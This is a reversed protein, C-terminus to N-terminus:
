LPYERVKGVSIFVLYFIPKLHEGAFVDAHAAIDLSMTVPWSDIYFYWLIVLTSVPAIVSTSAAIVIECLM